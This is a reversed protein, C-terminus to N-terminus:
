KSRKTKRRVRINKFHTNFNKMTLEDNNMTKFKKYQKLFHTLSKGMCRHLLYECCYNGCITSFINQLQVNNHTYKKSNNSIFKKISKINPTLGFSDFYEANGRTPFYIAVWHTGPLSSPDTNIIFCSPKRVKFKPLNDCAYVGKFKSHTNYNKQMINNIQISNMKFDILDIKM